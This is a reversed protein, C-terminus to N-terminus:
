KDLRQLKIAIEPHTKEVLKIHIAKGADLVDVAGAHFRIKSMPNTEIWEEVTNNGYEGCSIDNIKLEYCSSTVIYDDSTAGCVLPTKYNESTQFM